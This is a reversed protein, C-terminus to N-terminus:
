KDKLNEQVKQPYKGCGIAPWKANYTTSFLKCDTLFPWIREQRRTNEPVEPVRWSFCSTPQWVALIQKCIVVSPFVLKFSYSFLARNESGPLGKELNSLYLTSPHTFEINMDFCRMLEDASKKLLQSWFDLLLRRVDSWSWSRQFEIWRNSKDRRKKQSSNYSIMRLQALQLKHINTIQAAKFWHIILHFIFHFECTSWCQTM